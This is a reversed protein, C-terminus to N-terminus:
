KRSSVLEVMRQALKARAVWEHGGERLLYAGAESGNVMDLTNAVLYDAGSSVRSIQGIRLLEERSIGVELKFKVLIGRYQWETRFLDVLKETPQGLMAIAKHTSKVKGAQVDQVIWRERQPDQSDPERNVVAFVRVPRYDSVAATMFIAHYDHQGMLAALAGRLEAHCTFPSGHIPYRTTQGARVAALHNLNSTLLDVQGVEALANAISFGTNGTFINGWDRVQDIKERTNGATVLFRMPHIKVSQLTSASLLSTAATTPLVKRAEPPKQNVPVARARLIRPAM